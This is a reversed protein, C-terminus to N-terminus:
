PLTLKQGSYVAAIFRKGKREYTVILTNGPAYEPAPDGFVTDGVIVADKKQLILDQVKETVDLWSQNVGYTASLIKPNTRITKTPSVEPEAELQDIRAKFTLAKNFDGSKTIEALRDKYAKLRLTAAERKVKALAAEAKGVESAYKEEAAQLVAPEVAPATPPTEQAIAIAANVVLSIILVSRIM